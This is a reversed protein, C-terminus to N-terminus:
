FVGIKPDHEFICFEIVPFSTVNAKWEETTRSRDFILQRPLNKVSASISFFVSRRKQTADNRNRGSFSFRGIRSNQKRGQRDGRSGLILRPM